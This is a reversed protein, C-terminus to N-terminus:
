IKQLWVMTEIHTTQPFFDFCDISLIKYDKCIRGLDRALTAPDCSVYCIFRPALKLLPINTKYMGERPPDAIVLDYQLGKKAAGWVHQEADAAIYTANTLRNSISAFKACEIARASYEVGVVSKTIATLPLSLNGSGCFLDLITEIGLDQVRSLLLSRVERNLPLNVQQFIGPKTYFHIGHQFDYPLFPASDTQSICGAWILGIQERLQQTLNSFLPILGRDEPFIVATVPIQEPDHPLAISQLEIKFKQGSLEPAKIKAIAQFAQNLPEVAIGCSEIAVLQHSGESYFGLHLGGSTDVTAKLHIRNRYAYPNVSGHMSITTDETVKGIRKLASRVFNEKWKLQEHYPANQWLCGGCSKFVPCPAPIRTASSQVFSVMSADAYREHDEDVQAIIQDGPLTHPVFYVKGDRRAIGRGGYAVDSITLEITM